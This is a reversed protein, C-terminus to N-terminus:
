AAKTNPLGIVSAVQAACLSEPRCYSPWIGADGMIEILETRLDHGPNAVARMIRDLMTRYTDTDLYHNASM